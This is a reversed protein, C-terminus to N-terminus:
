AREETPLDAVALRSSYKALFAGRALAEVAEYSGSSTFGSAYYRVASITFVLTFLAWAAVELNARLANLHRPIWDDLSPLAENM